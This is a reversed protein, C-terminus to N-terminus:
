VTQHKTSSNKLEDAYTRYTVYFIGAELGVRLYEELSARLNAERQPQQLHHFVGMEAEDDAGTRIEKPCQFHLQAYAAHGYSLDTFLPKLRILIDKKIEEERKKQDPISMGPNKALEAALEKKVAKRIATHPQCHYQRPIMSAEPVYSFRMCGEQKREAVVEGKFISNSGLRVSRVSVSGLITSEEISVSPGRIAFGELGDIISEKISLFNTDKLTLSGTISRTITVDLLLNGKEVVLSEKGGPEPESDAGTVDSDTVDSSTSDAGAAASLDVGPVLTSHRIQLNGLSGDLIKLGSGTILLGDIILQGGPQDKAATEGKITLDEALRLVPREENDARIELTIGAPISIELKIKEDYVRSDRICFIANPRNDAEWKDVADKITKLSSSEAIEYQCFKKRTKWADTRRDYFGGGVESSFGYNYYVQVESPTVGTSFAIRGLVPDVAVKEGSPVHVWGSLDCPVINDPPIDTGDASIHLSKDRGYYSKKHTFFARRRIPAPVNIEEALHTINEETEPQQFLQIDNELQSFSFRGNGHSFAQAERVPYAQLRWLYIGINPINHRGRRNEIHRVDATHAVTDFPTDLLELKESNRIDPSRHNDLRVHNIHQTTGLLKFFEVVRADWGTTDHALQELMTATGKRRRYSLTNAVRARQSFAAKENIPHLNRVGLLNGIYPVVWEDCTEIFWNDYLRAIDEEIVDAQEALVSLFEKLVEGREADRIRYIAPLLQYLKDADYSM